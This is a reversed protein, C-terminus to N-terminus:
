RSSAVWWLTAIWFVQLPLRLILSMAPRGAVALHARAAHINAPFLAVLLAILAYASLRTSQPVLLGAAGLLELIGTLTVLLGSKPLFPPVMRILDNRTRPVFHSMATFVFMVVLALRLAGSWSAGAALVGASALLRFGIWAVLMVILPAM